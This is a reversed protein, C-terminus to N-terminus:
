GGLSSIRWDRNERVLEFTVKQDGDNGTAVRARARDGTVRVSEVTLEDNDSDELAAEITAICDGARTRLEASLLQTCIRREQKKGAAEQLDEVVTAVKAQEGDFDSSSGTAAGCGSAALALLTSMWVITRRM